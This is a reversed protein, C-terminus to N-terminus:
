MSRCASMSEACVRSRMLSSKRRPTYLVLDVGIPAVILRELVLMGLYRDGHAFVMGVEHSEKIIQVHQM